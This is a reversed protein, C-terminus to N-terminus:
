ESIKQLYISWSLLSFVLPEIFDKGLIERNRIGPVAKNQFEKVIEDVRGAIRNVFTKVTAQGVTHGELSFELQITSIGIV